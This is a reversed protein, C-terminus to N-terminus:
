LVTEFATPAGGKNSSVALGNEVLREWIRIANLSLVGETRLGVGPPLKKLIELYTAPGYGRGRKDDQINIDGIYFYNPQDKTIKPKKIVAFGLKQNDPTQIDYITSSIDTNGMRIPSADDFIIEHRPSDKEILMVEPLAVDSDSKLAAEYLVMRSPPDAATLETHERDEPHLNQPTQEVTQKESM